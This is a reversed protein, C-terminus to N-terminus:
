SELVFAELTDVGLSAEVSYVAGNELEVRWNSHDADPALLRTASAAGLTNAGKFIIQEFEEGGLWAQELRRLAETEEATHEELEFASPQHCYYSLIQGQEGFNIEVVPTFERNYIEDFTAIAYDVTRDTVPPLVAFCSRAVVPSDAMYPVARVQWVADSVPLGLAAALAAARDVAQEATIADETLIFPDQPPSLEQYYVGGATRDAQELLVRQGAEYVADPQSAGPRSASVAVPQSGLEGGCGALCLCLLLPFVLHRRM